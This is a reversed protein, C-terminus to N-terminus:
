VGVASAALSAQCVCVDQVKGSGTPLTHIISGPCGGECELLYRRLVTDEMPVLQVHQLWALIGEALSGQTPCVRHYSYHNGSICTM